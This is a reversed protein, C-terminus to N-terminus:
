SVLEALIHASRQDAKMRCYLFINFPPPHILISTTCDQRGRTGALCTGIGLRRFEAALQAKERSLFEPWRRRRREGREWDDFEPAGMERGREWGLARKSAREWCLEGRRQQLSEGNGGEEGGWSERRVFFGRGREIKGRPLNTSWNHGENDSVSSLCDENVAWHQEEEVERRSRIKQSQMWGEPEPRRGEGVSGVGRRDGGQQERRGREVELDNVGGQEVSGGSFGKWM